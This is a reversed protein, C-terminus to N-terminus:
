ERYIARCSSSVGYRICPQLYVRPVLRVTIWGSTSCFGVLAYWSLNRSVVLSITKVYSIWEYRRDDICCSPRIRNRSLASNYQHHSNSNRQHRESTRFYRLGSCWYRAWWSASGTPAFATASLSSTSGSRGRVFLENTPPGRELFRVGQIAGGNPMSVCIGRALARRGSVAIAPGSGAGTLRLNELYLGHPGAPLRNDNMFSTGPQEATLSPSETENILHCDRVIVGRNSGDVSICGQTRGAPVSRLEIRTNEILGGTRSHTGAYAGGSEWVIPSMHTVEPSLLDIGTAQQHDCIVTCNRVWSQGGGLRISTAYNNETSGLQGAVLTQEVASM